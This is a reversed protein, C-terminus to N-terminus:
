LAAFTLNNSLEVLSSRPRQPQHIGQAGDFLRLIQSAKESAGNAMLVISEIAPYLTLMANKPFHLNFDHPDSSLSHPALMRELTALATNQMKDDKYDLVSELVGTFDRVRDPHRKTIADIANLVSYNLSPGQQNHRLASVIARTAVDLEAPPLDSQNIRTALQDLFLIRDFPPDEKPPRPAPVFEVSSSANGALSSPELESYDRPEGADRM